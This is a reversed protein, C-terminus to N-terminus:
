TKVEGVRRIFLPKPTNNPKLFTLIEKVIKQDAAESADNIGMIIMNNQRRAIEFKENLNEFEARTVTNNENIVLNDVQTQLSKIQTTNNTISRQMNELRSELVDEVVKKLEITNLNMLNKVWAPQETPIANEDTPGPNLEVCGIILLILVVSKSIRSQQQFVLWKMKSLPINRGVKSRWSIDTLKM